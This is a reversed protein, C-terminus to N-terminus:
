LGRMARNDAYNNFVNMLCRVDRNDELLESADNDVLVDRLTNLILVCGSSILGLVMIKPLADGVEGIWGRASRPPSRPQWLLFPPRVLPRLTSRACLACPSSPFPLSLAFLSFPLLTPPLDRSAKERQEERREGRAGVGKRRGSM